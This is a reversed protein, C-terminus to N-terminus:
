TTTPAPDDFPVAYVVINSDYRRISRNFDGGCTILTLVPPGERSFIADTPLSDKDYVARAETRYAETSGDDFDIYIVNGPDLAGLEFFVGPGQGALDVHAALVASGPEGPASGYKYWAVDSVNDPVEMDGNTEVGAPLIPAEQDLAPIRISVPIRNHGQPHEGITFRPIVTDAGPTTEETAPGGPESPEPEPPPPAAPVTPSVLVQEFVAPDGAESDPRTLVWTTLSVTLLLIGTTILAAASKM